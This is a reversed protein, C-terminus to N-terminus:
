VEALVFLDIFDALVWAFLREFNWELARDWKGLQSSSSGRVM